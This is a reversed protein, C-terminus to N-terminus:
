EKVVKLLIFTGVLFIALAMIALISIDAGLRHYLRAAIFTPSFMLAVAVIVLVSERIGSKKTQDTTLHKVTATEVGAVKKSM